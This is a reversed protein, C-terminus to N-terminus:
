LLLYDQEVMVMLEMVQLVQEEVVVQFVLHQEVLMVKILHELVELLLVIKKVVEEQVVM